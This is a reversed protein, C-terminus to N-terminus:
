LLALNFIPKQKREAVALAQAAGGYRHCVYAFLVDAKEAVYRNRALIAFRKPVSEIPPYLIADYKPSREQVRADLYPPVLILHADGHTKKFRCAAKYSLADFAGHMGLFFEVNRDKITDELLLSLKDCVEEAQLVSSHGFFGVIM